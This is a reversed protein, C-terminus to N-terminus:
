VRKKDVVVVVVVVVVFNEFANGMKGTDQGM